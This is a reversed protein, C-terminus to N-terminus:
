FNSGIETVPVDGVREDSSIKVAWCDCFFYAAEARVITIAEVGMGIVKCCGKKPLRDVSAEM